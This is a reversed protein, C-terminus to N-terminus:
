NNVEMFQYESNLVITTQHNDKWAVATEVAKVSQNAGYIVTFIITILTIVTKITDTNKNM